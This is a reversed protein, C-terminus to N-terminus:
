KSISPKIVETCYNEFKDSVSKPLPFKALPNNCFVTYNEENEAIYYFYLLLASISSNDIPEGPEIYVGDGM